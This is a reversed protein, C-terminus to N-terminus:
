RGGGFLSALKRTQDDTLAPAAAVIRRVATEVDEFTAKGQPEALADLDSRLVKVRGGIKVAPLRGVRTWRHLTPYTGYGLAVAERLTLYHTGNSTPLTYSGM